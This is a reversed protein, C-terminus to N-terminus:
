SSATRKGRLRREAARGALYARCDRCGRRDVHRHLQMLQSDDVDGAAARDAVLRFQMCDILIQPITGDGFCVVATAALPSPFRSVM